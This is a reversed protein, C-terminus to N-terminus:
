SLPACRKGTTQTSRTRLCRVGIMPPTLASPRPRLRLHVTSRLSGWDLTCSTAPINKYYATGYKIDMRMTWRAAQQMESISPGPRM